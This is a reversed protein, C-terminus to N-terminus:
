RWIFWNVLCSGLVAAISFPLGIKVFQGFKVLHGEKKLLGVAVINASAGIPTINGGICTGLLLAFVYPYISINLSAALLKIASIMAMTYPINDVFGSILVSFWVIVNYLGFPSSGFSALRNSFDKIIGSSNLSGVLIFIGVLLFFSAWDIDKRISITERHFTLQWVIGVVGWGIALFAPYFRFKGALFLSGVAFSIIFFGLLYLPFWSKVGNSTGVLPTATAEPLKSRVPCAGKIKKFFFYLVLFGLIAGIQVSFFIGPKGNLWFFDNFNMGTELAMIISPSDGVMTACGQVNSAVAMGIFLPVPNLKFKRTFEFAVPAMLLVTAVNEVVISILGAIVCILLYCVPLTFGKRIIKETWFSPIGSFAFLYSLITTGLFIGLVNWNIFSPIQDVYIAGSLLLVCVAACVFYLGWERKFIIGIYTLFFVILILVVM